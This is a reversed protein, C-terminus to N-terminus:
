SRSTTFHLSDNECVQILLIGMFFWNFCIGLIQVLHLEPAQKLVVCPSPAYQLGPALCFDTMWNYKLSSIYKGGYWSLRFKRLWPSHRLPFSPLAWRTSLVLLSMFVFALSALVGSGDREAIHCGVSVDSKEESSDHNVAFREYAGMPVDSLVGDSAMCKHLLKSITRHHSPIVLGGM